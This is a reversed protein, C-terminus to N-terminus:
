LILFIIFYFTSKIFPYYSKGFIEHDFIQLFGVGMCILIVSGMLSPVLCIIIIIKMRKLATEHDSKVHDSKEHDTEEMITNRRLEQIFELLFSPECSCFNNCEFYRILQQWLRAYFQIRFFRLLSLCDITFYIINQQHYKSNIFKKIWNLSLCLNSQTDNTSM